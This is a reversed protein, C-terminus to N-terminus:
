RSLHNSAWYQRAYDLDQQTDIEIYGGPTDVHAMKEGGELMEQLLHIFYAKEFLAAERFPKGAHKERTPTTPRACVRPAPPPSNRWASSSATRTTITCTV